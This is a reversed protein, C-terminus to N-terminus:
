DALVFDHLRSRIGVQVRFCCRGDSKGTIVLIMLMDNFSAIMGDLKLSAIKVGIKFFDDNFGSTRFCKLGTDLRAKM